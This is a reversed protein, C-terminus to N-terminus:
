EPRQRAGTSLHLVTAVVHPHPAMGTLVRPALIKRLITTHRFLWDLWKWAGPKGIKPQLAKDTERKPVPLGAAQCAPCPSLALCRSTWITPLFMM